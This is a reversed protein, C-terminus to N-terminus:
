EREGLDTSSFQELGALYLPLRKSIGDQRIMTNGFIYASMPRYKKIFSAISKAKSTPGSKVEVPVVGQSTELIFEIEGSSKKANWAFPRYGHAVLEQCVFNEAIFGKFSGKESSLFPPNSGTM